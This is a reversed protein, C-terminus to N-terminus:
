FVLFYEDSSLLVKPDVTWIRLSDLILLQPWSSPDVTLWRSWVWVRSTRVLPTNIVYRELQTVSEGILEEFTYTVCVVILHVTTSVVLKIGRVVCCDAWCLLCKQGESHGLRPM